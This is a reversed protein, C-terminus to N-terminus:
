FLPHQESAPVAYECVASHLSMVIFGERVPRYNTLTYGHLQNGIMRAAITGGPDIKRGVEVRKGGDAEEVDLVVIEVPDACEACEARSWPPLAPRRVPPTGKM